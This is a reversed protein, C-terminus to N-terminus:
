AKGEAISRAFNESSEKYKGEFALVRGLHEFAAVPGGLDVSKQYAARAKDYDGRTELLRGMCLQLAGDDVHSRLWSEATRIRKALTEEGLEGYLALLHPLWQRGLADRVASEARAEDKLKECYVTIVTEDHRVIQPQSKFIIALADDTEAAKLREITVNRQLDFLEKDGMVKKLSSMLDALGQWDRLALMARSKLRVVAASSGAGSLADLAQAHRGAAIDMEAAAVRAGLRWAPDADTAMRLWRERAEVDGLADAARAAYLYNVAPHDVADAHGTLFKQARDMEGANFWALGQATMKRARAKQRESRWSKVLGGASLSFRVLRYGYILVVITALTLAVFVWLGTQLTRGEYSVMVYGPDRAILTGLIGAIVIAGLLKLLSRNM